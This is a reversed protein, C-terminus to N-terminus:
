RNTQVSVPGSDFVQQGGSNLFLRITELDSYEIRGQYTQAGDFALAFVMRDQSIGLHQHDVGTFTVESVNLGKDTIFRYVAFKVSELQTKTLGQDMFGTTGNYVTEAPASSVTPTPTSWATDQGPAKKAGPLTLVVVIIILIIAGGAAAILVKPNNM